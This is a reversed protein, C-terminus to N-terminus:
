RLRENEPAEVRIKTPQEEFHKMIPPALISFLIGVIALVILLEILTFGKNKMNGECIHSEYDNVDFLSIIDYSRLQASHWLACFDGV